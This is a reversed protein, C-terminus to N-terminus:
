DPDAGVTFYTARQTNDGFYGSTPRLLNDLKMSKVHGDCWLVNLTELHREVDGGTTTRPSVNTNISLFNADGNNAPRTDNWTTSHEYKSADLAFVTTSASAIAPLRTTSNPQSISPGKPSGSGENWGGMNAGYSSQENNLQPNTNGSDSPCRFLQYSKIYPQVADMWEYKTEGEKWWVMPLAEDYDQTYQMLGLGIQKLNSSCSARRANERARAFVPFLIAALIAIIAIVVLLELPTFGAKTRVNHRSNM